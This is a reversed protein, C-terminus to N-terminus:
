WDKRLADDGYGEALDPLIEIIMDPDLTYLSEFGIRPYLLEGDYANECGLLHLLEWFFDGKGLIYMNKLSGPERGVIVLLRIGSPESPVLAALGRKMKEAASEAAASKDYWKGMAKLSDYIDEFTRHPLAMYEIGAKDLFAMTEREEEYLFVMDPELSVIRERSPNLPSGMRVADSGDPIVCYDTVAVLSKGEGLAVILDTLGPALSIVGGAYVAGAFVTIILLLVAAKVKSPMGYGKPWPM